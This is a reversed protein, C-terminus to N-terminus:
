ERFLDIALEQTMRYFLNLPFGMVNFFCGEIREIFMAARGQIAYAGAKDLYEENALYFDIEADSLKKFIVASRSIAFHTRGRHMLALGTFVQHTRQSLLRLMRRADQADVPKGIIRDDCHVITDASVVLAPYLDSRYISLGKAIATRELFRDVTEGPQQTEDIEPIIIQPDLGVMRLLEQRRPSASALILKM